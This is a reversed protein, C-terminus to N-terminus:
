ETEESTVKSLSYTYDAVAVIQEENLAGQWTPMMNDVRGERIAQTWEELTIGESVTPDRFNAPEINAEQAVIGNGDGYEGHCSACHSIFVELGVRQRETLNRNEPRELLPVETSVIEPEGALNGCGSIMSGILIALLAFVVSHRYIM